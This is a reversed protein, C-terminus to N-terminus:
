SVKAVEELAHRNMDTGISIARQMMDFQRLVSVLRVAGETVPVNANEISNQHLEMAKAVTPTLSTDAIQFYIGERKSLGSPKDFDAIEIQGIDRGDQQIVGQPTVQIPKNPVFIAESGDNTKIRLPYGHQTVIKGAKSLQFNGNRTYLTANPTDVTFMGKGSLALDLENGTPVISGQGFDTWQREIVPLTSADPRMDEGAAGLAEPSAYLGYFERDTKFGATGSNAVNNALMDLSEM